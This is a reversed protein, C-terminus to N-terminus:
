LASRSQAKITVLCGLYVGSKGRRSWIFSRNGRSTVVWMLILGRHGRFALPMRKIKVSVHEACEHTHMLHPPLVDDDDRTSHLTRLTTKGCEKMPEDSWDKCDKVNDCVKSSDICEGNKCRFRRPGDCKTVTPSHLCVVSWFILSGSQLDSPAIETKRSDRLSQFLFFFLCFFVRRIM